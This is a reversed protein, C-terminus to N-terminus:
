LGELFSFFTKIISNRQDSYEIAIIFKITHNSTRDISVIFALIWNRQAHASSTYMTFRNSLTLFLPTRIGSVGNTLRMWNWKM